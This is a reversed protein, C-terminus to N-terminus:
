PEQYFIPQTAVVYPSYPNTLAIAMKWYSNRENPYGFPNQVYRVGDITKDWDIHTHGFVHCQSQLDRVQKELDICGVVFPLTPLITMGILDRRPLFHSLTITYSPNIDGHDVKFQALQRANFRTFYQCIGTAHHQTSNMDSPWKCQNYDNWHGKLEEYDSDSIGGNFDCDHWGFLPVILSNTEKLLTPRYLVNLQDCVALIQNLKDISSKSGGSCWLDHNGPVYFVHRFIQKTLHFFESIRNIDTAVDGAVLLVDLETSFSSIDMEKWYDWNKAIDVHVDSVAYFKCVGGEERGGGQGM